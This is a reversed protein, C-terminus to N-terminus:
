SSTENKQLLLVFSQKLQKNVQGHFGMSDLAQFKNELGKIQRKIPNHLGPDETVPYRCLGAKDRIGNDRITLLM